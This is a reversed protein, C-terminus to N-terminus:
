SAIEQPPVDRIERAERLARQAGNVGGGSALELAIRSGLVNYQFQWAAETAQQLLSDAQEYDRLLRAANAARILVEVSADEQAARVRERLVDESTQARLLCPTVAFLLAFGVAVHRM